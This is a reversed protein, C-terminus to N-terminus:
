EIEIFDIGVPSVSIAILRYDGDWNNDNVWNSAAFTMQRIKNSNIADLGVGWKDSKRYKVEVFYIINAKSAVIDIECWRSRWNRDIVRYKNQILYKVAEDEGKDGIEKTSM